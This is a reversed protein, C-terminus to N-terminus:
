RVKQRCMPCYFIEKSAVGDGYAFVKYTSKEEKRFVLSTWSGNIEYEEGKKIKEISLTHCSEKPRSTIIIKEDNKWIFLHLAKSMLEIMKDQKTIHNLIFEIAEIEKNFEGKTALGCENARKTHELDEKLIKIAEELEM